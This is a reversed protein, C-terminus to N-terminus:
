EWVDREKWRRRSSEGGTVELDADWSRGRLPTQAMWGCLRRVQRM